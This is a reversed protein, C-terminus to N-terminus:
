PIERWRRWMLIGCGWVAILAGAMMIIRWDAPPTNRALWAGGMIGIGLGCRAAFNFSHEDLKM